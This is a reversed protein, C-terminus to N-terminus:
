EDIKHKNVLDMQEVLVTEIRKNYTKMVTARIGSQEISDGARPFRDLQEIILGGISDNEDSELHCELKDNLDDIKYSGNVKYKGLSLEVFPNDSSDDYEDYIEGIIEEILDQTTVMGAVAGYEDLVIAVSTSNLQMDKFLTSTNKMEFTFYPKRMLRAIKFASTANSDSFSRSLLVDKSHLIGVINDPSDKYVPIRSHASERFIDLMEDFGSEIDITYMDIRPVMVDKANSDVFDIVNNIIQKESKEIVGAEHSAAVMTRLEAETLYTSSGNKDARFIKLFFGSLKDIIFVIPSFAIMLFGIIGAYAMAIAESHQSAITKPTVEGFILLLVTLIATSIGAAAPGFVSLVWTTTMSSVVINVINNGVLITSILQSTKELNKAARIANKNGSDAMSKLKFKNSMTYATEASSFFASGLILLIIIILQLIDKPAM